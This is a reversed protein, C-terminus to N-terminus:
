TQFANGLGQFLNKYQVQIEINLLITKEMTVKKNVEKNLWFKNNNM